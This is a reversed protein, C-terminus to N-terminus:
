SFCGLSCNTIRIGLHGAAAGLLPRPLGLEDALRWAAPCSLTSSPAAARLADSVVSPVANLEEILQKGGFGEYGFLGLQCCGVRVGQADFSAVVSRPSTSQEKALRFATACPLRDSIIPIPM